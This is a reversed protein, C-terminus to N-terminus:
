VNFFGTVGGVQPLPYGIIRALHMVAKRYAQQKFALRREYSFTAGGGSVIEDAQDTTDDIATETTNCTTLATTLEAEMEAGDELTSILPDLITSIPHEGLHRKIQLKQTTTLTM